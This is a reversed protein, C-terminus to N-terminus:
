RTRMSVSVLPRMIVLRRQEREQGPVVIANNDPLAIDVMTGPGLLDHLINAHYAINRMARQEQSEQQQAAGAEQVM